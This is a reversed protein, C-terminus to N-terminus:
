AKQNADVSAGGKSPGFCGRDLALYPMGCLQGAACFGFGELSEVSTKAASAIAACFGFGELSEASAKPKKIPMPVRVVERPPEASFETLNSTGSAHTSPTESCAAKSSSGTPTMPPATMPAPRKPAVNRLFNNVIQLKESPKVIQMEMQVLQQAGLEKVKKRGELVDKWLEDNM